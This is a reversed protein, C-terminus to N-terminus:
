ESLPSSLITLAPAPSSSILSIVMSPLSSSSSPAKTTSLSFPSETVASAGGGWALAHRRAFLADTYPLDSPDTVATSYVHVVLSELYREALLADLREVGGELRELADEKTVARLEGPVVRANAAVAEVRQDDDRGALRAASLEELLAAVATRMGEADGEAALRLAKEREAAAGELGLLPVHEQTAAFRRRRVAGDSTADYAYRGGRFPFTVPERWGALAWAVLDDPTRAPAPGGAEPDPDPEGRRAKELFLAEEEKLAALLGGHLWRGFAGIGASPETKPSAFLPLDLLTRVLERARADGLSGSRCFAALLDVSAQFLGARLEAARGGGVTDLRNLTFLFRRVVVPDELPLDELPAFSPLLRELGRFLLVVTGPDALVPRAEVLSSVMLFRKQAPVDRGGGAVARRFLRRLFEDTADPKKSADALLASLEAEDAPFGSGSLAELWLAAGGPVVIEGDDALRLFRALHTFDYPDRQPRGVNGGAREIASYLRRFRKLAAEGGGSRGLVFARAAPEPLQWLADAVYAAKGSDAAFLKVVFRSREALPEGVVDEWVAEAEPGGPLRIRGDRIVLVEPFRAFGDLAKEYLLAWGKPGGDEGGFARAEGLTRADVAQLAVLM